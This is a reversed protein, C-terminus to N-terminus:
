HNAQTTFDKLDIAHLVFVSHNLAIVKLGHRNLCRTSGFFGDILAELADFRHQRDGPAGPAFRPWGGLNHQRKLAPPGVTIGSNSCVRCQAGGGIKQDFIASRCHECFRRFDIARLM